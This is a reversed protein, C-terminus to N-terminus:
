LVYIKRELIESGRKKYKIKIYKLRELKKIKKSINVKHINLKNALYENNARCSGFKNYYYDILMLLKLENKISEDFLWNKRCIFFDYNM